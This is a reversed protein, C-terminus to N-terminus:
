CDFPHAPVRLIVHNELLVFSLFITEICHAHATHRHQFVQGVELGSRIQAKSQSNLEIDAMSFSVSNYVVHNFAQM